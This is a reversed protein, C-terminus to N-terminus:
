TAAEIAALLTEFDFADDHRAGNIFFTPTGNVGSRVGGVFDERVAAAYAHEALVNVFSMADLDLNAAYQALSEPELAPSNEFLLTHMEWFKGHVAAAEAAEAAGEALPHITTLPFHRFVFRLRQGLQEALSEVIPFARACHPCEYDGYEVLTVPATKSGRVHDRDDVPVALHATAARRNM